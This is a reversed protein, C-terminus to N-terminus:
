GTEEGQHGPEHVPGKGDHIVQIPYGAENQEECDENIGLERALSRKSRSPDQDVLDQLSVVMTCVLTDSRRRDQKRECSFDEPLLLPTTACNVDRVTSKKLNNYQVIECFSQAVHLGSIIAAFIM